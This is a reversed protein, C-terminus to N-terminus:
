LTEIFDGSRFEGRGQSKASARMTKLVPVSDRYYSATAGDVVAGGGWGSYGSHGGYGWGNGPTGVEWPWCIYYSQDLATIARSVDMLESSLADRATGASAGVGAVVLTMLMIWEFSLVGSDENLFRAIFTFM